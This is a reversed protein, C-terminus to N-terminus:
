SHSFSARYPKRPVMVDKLDCYFEFSWEGGERGIGSNGMGGFPANLDRLFYSNVWIMGTRVQDAVAIAHDQQGYCVGALGYQTDNAMAIAQADDSFTQWVLVPGFVENQVIEDGSAVGTILTPEYYLEGAAHRRGGWPAEAGGALAREVFGNVRDLQRQHIMPGVETAPDRPDGVKLRGVYESMRRQFEAAVSEHVLFRTGALCVQGANRYMLAATGAAADLDADALVIFASKGGLEFACPVLNDAASRAISRATPVSGTFAIRRVRRDAVLRAGTPQGLGHVVNFVGAPMGAQDAIEALLSCTLPAWEPPKLVVTNGAALAPGLRWTALMLPGNWPTIIACVGAPDYRLRHIAADAEIRKDTLHQAFDAFFGINAASRAVVGHQMRALLVGADESEVRALEDGRARVGAAFRQLRPLRGAPGLGAWAPFAAAAAAVAADVHDDLGASMRALLRGDIPSFVEFTEGSSVFRGDIYHGTPVATGAVSASADRDNM